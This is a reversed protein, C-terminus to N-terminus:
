VHARGIQPMLPASPSTWMQSALSPTCLSPNQEWLYVSLTSLCVSMFVCAHTTTGWASLRTSVPKHILPPVVAIYHLRTPGPLPPMQKDSAQDSTMSLIGDDSSKAPTSMAGQKSM